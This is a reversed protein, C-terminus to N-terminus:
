VCEGHRHMEGFVYPGGNNHRANVWLRDVVWFSGGVLRWQTVICNHSGGKGPHPLPTVATVTNQM